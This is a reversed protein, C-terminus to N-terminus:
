RSSTYSWLKFIGYNSKSHIVFLVAVVALDLEPLLSVGLLLTISTPVWLGEVPVLAPVGEAVYDRLVGGMLAFDQVDPSAVGTGMSEM